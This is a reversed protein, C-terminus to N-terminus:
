VSEVLVDEESAGDYVDECGSLVDRTGPDASGRTRVVDASSAHHISLRLSQGAIHCRISIIYAVGWTEPRTAYRMPSLPSWLGAAILARMLDKPMEPTKLLM